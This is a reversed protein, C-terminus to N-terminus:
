VAANGNVVDAAVDHIKRRASRAEQRLLEFAENVPMAHREALVGKAQEIVVRSTLAQELQRSREILFATPDGLNEVTAPLITLGRGGFRVDCSALGGQTLWSGIANFLPVLKESAGALPTIRVTYSGGPEIEVDFDERIASALREAHELTPATIGLTLGGDM